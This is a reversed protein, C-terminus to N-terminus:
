GRPKGPSQPVSEIFLGGLCAVFALGGLLKQEGTSYADSYLDIMMAEGFGMFDSDLDMTNQFSDELARNSFSEWAFPFLFLLLAVAAMIVLAPRRFTQDIAYTWALWMLVIGGFPVLVLLRDLLRVDAFGGQPNELDLSFEDGNNKGTWIEMATIKMTGDDLEFGDALAGIDFGFFSIESMDMWAFTFFGIIMLLGMVGVLGAVLGRALTLNFTLNLNVTMGPPRYTPPADGDTLSQISPYPPVETPSASLSPWPLDDAPAIEDLKALWKQATENAPMDMLIARAANFQKNLILDRARELQQRETAV